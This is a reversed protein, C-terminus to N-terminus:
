VPSKRPESAPQYTYSRDLKVVHRNFKRILVTTDDWAVVVGRVDNSEDNDRVVRVRTGNVRYEDLQEESVM